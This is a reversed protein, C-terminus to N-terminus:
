WASYETAFVVANDLKIEDVKIYEEKRPDISEEKPIKVYEEKDKAICGIKSCEDGFRTKRQVSFIKNSFLNINETYGGERM